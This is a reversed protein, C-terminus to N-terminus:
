TTQGQCDTRGKVQAGEPVAQLDDNRLRQGDSDGDGSVRGRDCLPGDSLLLQGSHILTDGHHRLWRVCLQRDRWADTWVFAGVGQLQVIVNRGDRSLDLDVDDTLPEELIGFIELNLLKIQIFLPYPVLRM